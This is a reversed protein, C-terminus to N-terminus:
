KVAITWLAGAYVFSVKRGGPLWRLSLPNTQVSWDKDFDMDANLYGIVRMDSGDVRSTRLQTLLRPARHLTPIWKSLWLRPGSDEERVRILWALRDGRPSLQVSEGNELGGDYDYSEFDVGTKGVYEGAKPISVVSQRVNAPGGDVSFELFDIRRQPGRSKIPTNSGVEALVRGSGRTGLLSWAYVYASSKAIPHGVHIRRVIGPADLSQVVADLGQRGDQLQVWQRSDPLWIANSDHHWAEKRRLPGKKVSSGDLPVSVTRTRTEDESEWLLRSGNPSAEFSYGYTSHPIEEKGVRRVLSDLATTKGTRTDVEAIPHSPIDRFMVFEYDSVWEYSDQAHPYGAVRVAGQTLLQPGGALSTIWAGVGLVLCAASIFVFYSKRSTHM